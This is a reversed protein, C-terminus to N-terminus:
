AQYNSALIITHRDEFRAIAQPPAVGSSSMLKQRRMTSHVSNNPRIRSLSVWDHTGSPNEVRIYQYLYYYNVGPSAVITQLYHETVDGIEQFGIRQTWKTDFEKSLAPLLITTIMFIIGLVSRTGLM